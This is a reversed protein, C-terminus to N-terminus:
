ELEKVAQELRSMVETIDEDNLSDTVETQTKLVAKKRVIPQAVFSEATLSFQYKFVRTAKDGPEVDVNNAISDLKVGIEWSIGRVRIYAIPSFKTIIQTLIQNMDEEYLTWAYLTYGIDIPIGRSIGFITDRQYRESTTFGPKWDLEPRRLYDIAKHYVYRDQNFTFDSSHIALIPLRIRDVVLSEDKRTNDQLVWAVAKEQTAWIIPVQHSKGAEDIVVIDKFMDKVAEDTGRISKQYRYVVNRNPQSMGQENIIHGTQQPDCLASQGQGLKSQTADELWSLDRPAVDSQNDLEPKHDITGSSKVAETTRCFPPPTDINVSKIYGPENCSNLNSPDTM